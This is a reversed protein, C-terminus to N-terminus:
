AAPPTSTSSARPGCVRNGGSRKAEALAREADELLEAQGTTRYLTSVGVSVTVPMKRGDTEPTSVGRSPPPEPVQLSEIARRLGEALELAGALDEGPLLVGYEDAAHRGVLGREGARARLEHAVVRLLGNGALAGYTENFRQLNDVDVFLVSLPKDEGRAYLVERGLRHLWFRRNPLETLGDRDAIYDVTERYRHELDDGCLFAVITDGTAIRDGSALVQRTVPQPHANVFTYNTAGQDILVYRGDDQREISCHARSVNDSNFVVDQDRNRGIRTVPQTLRYRRGYLHSYGAAYLVVLCADAGEAGDDDDRPSGVPEPEVGDMARELGESLAQLRPLRADRALLADREAAAFCHGAIEILVEPDPTERAARLQGSTLQGTLRSFRELQLRVRDILADLQASDSAHRSLALVATKLKPWSIFGHERAVVLQADALAFEAQRGSLAAESGLKPHQSRVRSLADHEGARVARQLKRAQKKLYEYSAGSRLAPASSILAGSSAPTRESM